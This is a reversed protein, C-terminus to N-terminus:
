RRGFQNNFFDAREPALCNCHLCIYAILCVYFSHKLCHIFIKAGNIDQYVIRTQLSICMKM